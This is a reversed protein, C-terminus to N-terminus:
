TIGMKFRPMPAMAGGLSHGVIVIRQRRSVRETQLRDFTQNAWDLLYLNVGGVIGRDIPLSAQTIYQVGHNLRTVGDLLVLLTDAWSIWASGPIFENARDFTIAQPAPKLRTADRMIAQEGATDRLKWTMQALEYAFLPDSPASNFFM